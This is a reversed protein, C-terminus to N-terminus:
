LLTISLVFHMCGAKAVEHVSHAWTHHPAMHHCICLLKKGEEGAEMIELYMEVSITALESRTPSSYVAKGFETEM